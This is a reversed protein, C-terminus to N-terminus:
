TKSYCRQCTETYAYKEISIQKQVRNGLRMEEKPVSTLLLYILHIFFVAVFEKFKEKSSFPRHFDTRRGLVRRDSCVKNVMFRSRSDEGSQLVSVWQQTHAPWSEPAVPLLWLRSSTNLRVTQFTEVPATHSPSEASGALLFVKVKTNKWNLHHRVWLTLHSAKKWAGNWASFCM